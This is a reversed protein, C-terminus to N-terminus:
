DPTMRLSTAAFTGTPRHREHRAAVCDFRTNQRRHKEAFREEDAGGKVQISLSIKLSHSSSQLYVRATRTSAEIRKIRNIPQIQRSGSNQGSPQVVGVELKATEGILTVSPQQMSQWAASPKSHCTWSNNRPGDRRCGTIKM